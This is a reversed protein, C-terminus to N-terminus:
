PTAAAALGEKILTRLDFAEPQPYRINDIKWMGDARILDFYVITPQEFNLFTAKVVASAADEKETSFALNKIEFDQANYLIDYDVVPEDSKLAADYEAMLSATFVPRLLAEPGAQHEPEAFYAAWSRYLEEVVAQPSQAQARSVGQIILFVLAVVSLWVLSTQLLRGRDAM